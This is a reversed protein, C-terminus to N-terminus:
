AAKPFASFMPAFHSGVVGDIIQLLGLLSPIREEEVDREVSRVVRPLRRLFIEVSVREGPNSDRRVKQRFIGVLVQDAAAGIETIFSQARKRAGLFSDLHM